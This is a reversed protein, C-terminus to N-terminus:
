SKSTSAQDLNQLDLNTYSIFEVRPDTTSKAINEESLKIARENMFYFTRHLPVPMTWGM